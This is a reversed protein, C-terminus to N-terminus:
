PLYTCYDNFLQIVYFSALVGGCKFTLSLPCVANMIRFMCLFQIPPYILM